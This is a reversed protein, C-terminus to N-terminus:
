EFLKIGLCQIRELCDDMLKDHKTQKNQCVIAHGHVSGRYKLGKNAMMDGYLAMVMDFEYDDDLSSDVFALEVLSSMLVIPLDLKLPISCVYRNRMSYFVHNLFKMLCRAPM